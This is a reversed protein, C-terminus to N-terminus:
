LLEECELSRDLSSDLAMKARGGRGDQGPLVDDTRQVAAAGFPGADALSKAEAGIGAAFRPPGTARM